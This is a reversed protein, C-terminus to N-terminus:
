KIFQIVVEAAMQPVGSVRCLESRPVLHSVEGYKRLRRYVKPMVVIVDRSMAKEALKTEFYSRLKDYADVGKAAEEFEVDDYLKVLIIKLRDITHMISNREKNQTFM